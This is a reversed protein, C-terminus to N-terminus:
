YFSTSRQMVECGCTFLSQAMMIALVTLTICPAVTLGPLSVSTWKSHALIVGATQTKWYTTKLLAFMVIVITQKIEIYIFNVDFTHLTDWM